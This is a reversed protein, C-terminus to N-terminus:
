KRFTYESNKSIIKIESDSIKIKEVNELSNAHLPMGASLEGNRNIELHEGSKRYKIKENEIELNKDKFHKRFKEKIEKWDDNLSLAQKSM